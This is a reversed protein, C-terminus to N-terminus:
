AVIAATAATSSEIIVVLIAVIVGIGYLPLHPPLVGGVRGSSDVPRCRVYISESRWLVALPLPILVAYRTGATGGLCCVM